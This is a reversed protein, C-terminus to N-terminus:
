DAKGYKRGGRWVIIFLMLPIVFLIIKSIVSLCKYYQWCLWLLQLLVPIGLFLLHDALEMRKVYASSFGDYCYKETDKRVAFHGLIFIIVSMFLMITSWLVNKFFIEKDLAQKESSLVYKRKYSIKQQTSEWNQEDFFYIFCCVVSDCLLSDKGMIGVSFDRKEEVGYFDSMYPLIEKVICQKVPIDLDVSLTDGISVGLETAMKKSIAIEREQLKVQLKVSPPFSSDSQMYLYGNMKKNHKNSFTVLGDKKLLSMEYPYKKESEAVYLRENKELSAKELHKPVIICVFFIDLIIFLFSLWVFYPVFTGWMRKIHHWYIM